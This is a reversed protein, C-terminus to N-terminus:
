RYRVYVSTVRMSRKLNADVLAVLVVRTAESFKDPDTPMTLNGHLALLAQLAALDHGGKVLKKRAIWVHGFLRVAIRHRRREASRERALCLLDSSGVFM